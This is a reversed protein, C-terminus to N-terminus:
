RGKKNKKTELFEIVGKLAIDADKSAMLQQTIEAPTTNVDLVLKEISDCLIHGDIKLYLSVLKNFVLPTCYDMLIHVDMRGPRLLAPDLMEKHNTTFIIIKEEGCSSWLGDVFNLLGSLSIGDEYKNKGKKSEDDDGEKEKTHRKRSADSGCDIDEILLISRNTTSTLIERLEGDDKVSQIQLDYINYKMHNAIAAVMSSKGTGPPGYLLYGRKWARGVSRFFDKGKSFADLDDILTAKLDPEIALTEFTTHHEFIASEWDSDEKNYTFIQLNERHRMIEEASKTVYAFYGAMIKERFEKKCTLHFYRKERRGKSKVNHLTWELHIREFEDMIKTDVPIGLKPQATPNKLNNSGVLLKGTSLGALRTPLYVQAARFTQNEVYEGWHQEIVFTFDSQFYSSFYDVLKVTIYERIGKPVVENLITRLLMTIASFTTYLSFVSSVSPLSDLNQPHLDQPHPRINLTKHIFIRCGSGGVVVM